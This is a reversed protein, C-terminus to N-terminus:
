SHTKMVNQVGRTFGFTVKCKESGSIDIGTKIKVLYLYQLASRASAKVYNVCFSKPFNITKQTVQAKILFM